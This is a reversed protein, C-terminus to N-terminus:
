RDRKLSSIKSSSMYAAARFGTHKSPDAGCDLVGRRMLGMLGRRCVVDLLDPGVYSPCSCSPVPSCSALVHASLFDVLRRRIVDTAEGFSM